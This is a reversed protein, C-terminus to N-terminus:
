RSYVSGGIGFQMSKGSLESSATVRFDLFRVVDGGEVIGNTAINPLSLAM